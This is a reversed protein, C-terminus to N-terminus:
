NKVLLKFILLLPLIELTCLYLILYFISIEKRIGVYITRFVSLIYMLLIVGAMIWLSLEEAIKVTAFITVFPLLFLGQAKYYLKINFVVERTEEKVMVVSGVIKFFLLRLFFIGNVALVLALFTIAPHFGPITANYFDAMQFVALPVICYSIFDVRASGSVTKYGSQLFLRSAIHFNVLSIMLQGLYELFLSRVSAFVAWLILVVGLVWDNGPSKLMEGEIGYPATVKPAPNRQAELFVSDSLTSVVGFNATDGYASYYGPNGTYINLNEDNAVEETYTKSQYIEKKITAKASNSKGHVSQSAVTHKAQHSASNKQAGQSLSKPATFGSTHAMLAESDGERELLVDFM